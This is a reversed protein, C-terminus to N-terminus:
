RDLDIEPSRAPQRKSFKADNAMPSGSTLGIVSVDCVREM